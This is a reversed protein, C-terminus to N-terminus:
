ELVAWAAEDTAQLQREMLILWKGDRKVLLTEFPIYYSTEAGAPDTVTYKFMGTEFATTEDDQRHTFRFSVSESTGAERADEMDQGWKVMPGAIPVTGNGSVLVADAHYVASMGKIDKEVVTQSVATWVDRDIESSTTGATVASAASLCIILLVTIVAKMTEELLPM